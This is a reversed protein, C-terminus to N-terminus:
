RVREVLRGPGVKYIRILFHTRDETNLQKNNTRGYAIAQPAPKLKATTEKEKKERRTIELSWPGISAFNQV